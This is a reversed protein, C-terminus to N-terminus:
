SRRTHTTMKTRMAFAIGEELARLTLIGSLDVSIAVLQQAAEPQIGTLVMRAGLLRVARATMALEEATRADLSPVGTIDLIATHVGREAVGRLLTERMRASREPDLDGVIPMVVVHASLPILPTSLSSLAKSRQLEASIRQREIFSGIKSCVDRM